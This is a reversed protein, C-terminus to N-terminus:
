TFLRNTMQIRYCRRYKNANIHINGHATRAPDRYQESSAPNQLFNEFAQIISSRRRANEIVGNHNVRELVIAICCGVLRLCQPHHLHRRPHYHYLHHHNRHM